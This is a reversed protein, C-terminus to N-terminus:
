DKFVNALGYEEPQKGQGNTFAQPEVVERPKLGKPLHMRAKPDGPYPRRTIPNCITYTYKNGEGKERLILGYESLKKRANCLTRESVGVANRIAADTRKLRRTCYRESQEMLYVYLKVEGPKMKAFLGSRIVHPHVGFFSEIMVTVLIGQTRGYFGRPRTTFAQGDIEREAESPDSEPSANGVERWGRHGEGTRERPDDDQRRGEHAKAKGKFAMFPCDM